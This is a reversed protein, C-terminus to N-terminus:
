DSTKTSGGWRRISLSSHRARATRRPSSVARYRCVSRAECRRVSSTEAQADGGGDEPAGTRVFIRVRIYNFNHPLNFHVICYALLAPTLDLARSALHAPCNNGRLSRVRAGPNIPRHVRAALPLGAGSSPQPRQLSGLADPMVSGRVCDRKLPRLHAEAMGNSQLYELPMTKPVLELKRAFRRTDRALYCTGHGNLWEILISLPNIPEFRHEIAVVMLDRVDQGTIGAATAVHSMAARDCCGLAFALRM